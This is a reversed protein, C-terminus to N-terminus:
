RRLLGWFFLPCKRNYVLFERKIRKQKKILSSCSDHFFVLKRADSTAGSIKASLVCRYIGGFRGSREIGLMADVRLQLAGDCGVQLLATAGRRAQRHDKIKIGGGGGDGM